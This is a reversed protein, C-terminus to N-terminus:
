IPAFYGTLDKGVVLPDGGMWIPIQGIYNVDFFLIIKNSNDIAGPNPCDTVIIDFGRYFCPLGRPLPIPCSMSLRM